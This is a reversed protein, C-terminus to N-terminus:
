IALACSRAKLSVLTMTRCACLFLWESGGTKSIGTFTSSMPYLILAFSSESSDSCFSVSLMGFAEGAGGGVVGRGMGGLCRGALGATGLLDDEGDPRFTLGLVLDGTGTVFKGGGIGGRFDEWLFLWSGGGTATEERRYESSSEGLVTGNDGTLGARGAEGAGRFM